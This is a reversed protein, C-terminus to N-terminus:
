VDKNGKIKNLVNQNKDMQNPLQKYNSLKHPCDKENPCIWSGTDCHLHNEIWLNYEIYDKKQENNM